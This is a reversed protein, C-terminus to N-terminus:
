PLKFLVEGSVTEVGGPTAPIVFNGDGILQVDNGAPQRLVGSIIAVRKVGADMLEFSGTFTGNTTNLTTKWKTLNNIGPVVFVNRSSLTMTTPLSAHSTSGTASHLVVFTDGTLGLLSTLPLTATPKVWPDLTLGITLPVFGLPYSKDTPWPAKAWVLSPETVLFRQSNLSNPQMEFTGSLFTEVRAPKYPQVWLRYSPTEEQSPLVSTTFATGDGLKGVLAIAGRTSVTARAWGAGRPVGVVLPQAPELVGTYAGSFNVKAGSPLLLLRQGDPFTALPQSNKTLTGTLEGKLTLTFSVAYTAGQSLVTAAGTSRETLFNTILAGSLRLTSTEGALAMTGSFTKGSSAVTLSLKGSPLNGGDALLAEYGAAFGEVVLTGQRYILTYNAALGSKATIPYTGGVSTVKASTSLTPVKTLVASTDSGVFGEYVLDLLPNIEGSLKRKDQPVVYLPAQTIVLTGKKTVGGAVAVVAYRGAATPPTTRFVGGVQYTVTVPSTTGVSGIAKPTGNYRQSLGTLTLVTPNAKVTIVRTVIKAAAYNGGGVQTARVTVQGVGTPTLISGALTAPGLLQLLVPLGSSAEATLTLPGQGLYHTAPANFVITQALSRSLTGFGSVAFTLPNLDPNNSAISLTATRLGPLSPDFTIAFTTSQGVAISSSPLATVKFDAADGGLIQVAPTGTLVFAATGNNQITFTRTVQANLLSVSGFATLDELSPSTEGNDIIIGNGIVLVTPTWYTFLSNAINSGSPTTVIVSVTGAARAPTTATIQTPSNVIFSASIGNFTVSTAGTFNTGTLTVQTGGVTTGTAPTVLTITVEQAETALIALTTVGTNTATAVGTLTTAANIAAQANALALQLAAWEEPTFNAEQYTAAVAALNALAAAVAAALTEASTPVADLAALAASTAAAVGAPNTAAIIAAQANALALQLAEWEESTFNSEQYTAALAALNALATAKVVALTEAIAALATNTATAVDTLNTAALIAAQANALALQLAAWEAPTFNAEQYTAAVAALSALAAEQAAALTEANTQVVDLATLAASTALAVSAANTAALIAAQANALALQLAEWEESTFNSEQYTAALAALNALAAAKVAALTEEAITPVANMAALAASTALAVGAPDTAANIAAQGTTQALILATWSEVTYNAELYTALATTLNEQALTQTTVLTESFTPVTDMATLAEDRATTVSAADTAANVAASGTARAAILALLNESTYNNAGLYTTFATTLDNLAAARVTALTENIVPVADLAELAENTAAAVGALDTAANIAAQGNAIATQLAMWNESTYSAELYTEVVLEFDNLAAAKVVALTGTITPVAAMAALATTAATAVGASDIAQNIELSGTARATILALLNEATYDNDELHTVFATTLANLATARALEMDGNIVPVADMTALATNIATALDALNTAANIAAQGNAIATQLTTWNETTYNGVVYTAVVADLDNLAAVKAGALTVTLTPVAAMAELATTAATAVGAPDTAANIAASGATRAAILATWSEFTYYNAELYTALATSLASLAAARATAMSETFTPVADLTALALNTATVVGALNTAENIATQGNENAAQVVTWNESTYNAQLYTVVVLAFDGLAATKAAALTGAVTPVATMAALAASRATAVGALNAAAQIATDGNTKATTLTTWNEPTYNVEPYAALATTLDTKAAVKAEALTDPVTPVADMAALAAAKAAAVGAPDTAANIATDGDTKADLLATWNESTYPNALLYAQRTATLENRAATKVAPLTEALGLDVGLHTTGGLVVFETSDVYGGVDGSESNSDLTDDEGQNPDTVRYDTTFNTLDWRVFLTGPQVGEFLYNGGVDTVTTAVVIPDPFGVPPAGTVASVTTALAITGAAKGAMARGSINTTVGFTIAAGGLINGRMHTGAGLSVAGEVIWYVNASKANNALIVNGTAATTGFAGVIQIIFVAEADGEADLTVSSALTAAAGIKYVGPKLTKGGLEFAAASLLEDPTRNKGDNYATEFDALATMVAAHGTAYVTGTSTIGAAIAGTGSGVNGTVNASGSIAAGALAGFNAATGLELTKKELVLQMLSVPINSFGATESPDQIGNVNSDFWVRDGVVSPDVPVNIATAMAITGATAGALLRGNVTTTAGFTVAANGLINGEMKISAGMSVAGEVIWFINASQADNALIVNGVSATASFAAGIQIIFVADPDGQADLTVPSGLTAAAGIKHVGPTLTKGGLEFAAASLISDPARNKAEAYATAVDTLATTVVADGTPYITGTSTIAPAIAGSGSGVNGKVQGTGSIAAGALAGFNKATGLNVPVANAAWLTGGPLAVTM